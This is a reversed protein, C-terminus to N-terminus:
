NNQKFNKNKQKLNILKQYRLDQLSTIENIKYYYKKQRRYFDDSNEVKLINKEASKKYKWITAKELKQTIDFKYGHKLKRLNYVWGASTSWYGINFVEIVFKRKTATM